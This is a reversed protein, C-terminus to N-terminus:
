QQRLYDLQEPLRDLGGEGLGNEFLLRIDALPRKDGTFVFRQHHPNSGVTVLLELISGANCRKGALEMQVPTGYHNVIGVVLAAPRAHLALDDALEVALEQLTTYEPLLDEAVPVGNELIRAAWYFFANLAVREVESRDILDSIRRKADESRVETEHREIFHALHTVAELLHLAASTHGRLRALRDDTGELVSNRIHTDYTSQLNHVTAEYVRAAAETCVKAFFRHRDEPDQIRRVGTEAVMEAAQLYKTAVEAIKQEEDELEAQGVNRPLLRRSTVPVFNQEPFTEPTIEVGLSQAESHVGELLRVAMRRLFTQGDRLSAVAEEADGGGNWLSDGYTKMRTLMHAVSYGSYAFWRLSAVLATFYAYTRNYRAGYDDLFTELADSENILQFYHKKTWEGGESGEALLANSLRFFVEAQTQLLGAFQREEVLEELRIEAM